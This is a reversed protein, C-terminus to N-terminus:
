IFKLVEHPKVEGNWKGDSKLRGIWARELSPKGSAYDPIVISVFGERVVIPWKDDTSSHFALGPHTHIQAKVSRKERALRCWFETLWVDDVEYGSPSRHHVPHEIGNVLNDSAPGTWYVACECEARGCERLTRFTGEFVAKHISLV